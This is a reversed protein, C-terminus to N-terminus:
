SPRKCGRLSDLSTSLQPIQLKREQPLPIGHWKHTFHIWESSGGQWFCTRILTAIHCNYTAKFHSHMYIVHENRMIFFPFSKLDFVCCASQFLPCVDFYDLFSYCLVQKHKGWKPLRTVYWNWRGCFANKDVFGVLNNKETKGFSTIFTHLHEAWIREHM